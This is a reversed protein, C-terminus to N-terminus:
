IMQAHQICHVLVASPTMVLQWGCDAQAEALVCADRSRQLSGWEICCCAYGVQPEFDSLRQCVPSYYNKGSQLLGRRNAVSVCASMHQRIQLDHWEQSMACTSMIIYLMQLINMYYNYLRRLAEPCVTYHVASSRQASDAHHFTRVGEPLASQVDANGGDNQSLQVSCHTAIRCTPETVARKGLDRDQFMLIADTV